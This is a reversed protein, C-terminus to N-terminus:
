QLPGASRGRRAEAARAVELLAADTVSAGACREAMGAVAALMGAAFAVRETNDLQLMAAAFPVALDSALQAGLEALTDATFGCGPVQQLAPPTTRRTM